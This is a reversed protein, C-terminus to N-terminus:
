KNSWEYIDDFFIDCFDLKHLLKDYLISNESNHEGLIIYSKNADRDVIKIPIHYEALIQEYVKQKEKLLLVERNTTEDEFFSFGFITLIIFGVMVILLSTRAKM